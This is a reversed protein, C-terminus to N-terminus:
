GASFYRWLPILVWDFLAAVGCLLLFIELIGLLRSMLDFKTEALEAEREDQPDPLVVFKVQEGVKAPFAVLAGM